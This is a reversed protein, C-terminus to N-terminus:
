DDDRLYAVADGGIRIREKEANIADRSENAFYSELKEPNMFESSDEAQQMQTFISHVPHGM